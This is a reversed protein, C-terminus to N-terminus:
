PKLEYGWQTNPNYGAVEMARKCHSVIASSSHNGDYYYNTNGIRKPSRPFYKPDTSVQCAKPLNAGIIKDLIKMYTFEKVERWSRVPYWKDIVFVKVPERNKFDPPQLVASLRYPTHKSETTGTDKPQRGSESPLARVRPSNQHLYDEADTETITIGSEAVVKVIAETLRPFPPDLVVKKALPISDEIARQKQNLKLYDEAEKKADGSETSSKSLFLRFADALEDLDDNKIDLVKFCKDSFKGGTQSYYFRWKEGDTIIAFTATNDKCYERLQEEVASVGNDLEGHKKIEIYATPISRIQFLAIDVKKNDEAPFPKYEANVECPNWIDWGLEYLIRSVLSLRIHEECEYFRNALKYRIDKLADKLTDKMAIYLGRLTIKDFRHHM